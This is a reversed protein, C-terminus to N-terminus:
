KKAEEKKWHKEYAKAMIENTGVTPHRPERGMLEALSAPSPRSEVYKSGEYLPMARPKKAIRDALECLTAPKELNRGVFGTNCGDVKATVPYRTVSSGNKVVVVPPSSM